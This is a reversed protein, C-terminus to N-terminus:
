EIFGIKRLSEEPEKEDFFPFTAVQRGHELAVGYPPDGFKFTDRLLDNDLSLGANFKTTELFQRGWRAQTTPIAILKVSDWHFRSMARAAENCHMCEPDFFYLFIKGHELSTVKGDVTISAPAKLGTQRAAIMGYMLGAFVCIAGLVLLASRLDESRRSWVAAGASLLLMVADGVFFAPGVARKIWPFCNCEEGILASYNVGIYVMFAILMLGALWAGWRRFRPVLLLVGALTETVGAGIAVALALSGPILAQVMRSSASLPDTLKWIGAVLFLAALLIACIWGAISKWAPYALSQPLTSSSAEAM